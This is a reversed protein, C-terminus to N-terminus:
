ISDLVTIAVFAIVILVAGFIYVGSVVVPDNVSAIDQWIIIPFTLLTYASYALVPGLSISAKAWCFVIIFSCVAYMTM